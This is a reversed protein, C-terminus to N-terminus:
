QQKISIIRDLRIEYNSKLEVFEAQHHVSIQTISDQIFQPQNNGDLYEIMLSRGIIEELKNFLEPGPPIYNNEIKCM